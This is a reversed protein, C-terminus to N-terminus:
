AARVEDRAVLEACNARVLAAAVSRAGGHAHRIPPPDSIHAWTRGAVASGLTRRNVGEEAAVAKVTEGARVRRRAGRVVDATLIAGPNRNGRKQSGILERFCAGSCTKARARKTPHPRFVKGCVVCPKRYPHKQKHIRMHAGPTLVELNEPRNDRGDGNKHHVHEDRRLRRGLVGEMVLRHELVSERTGPRKVTRYRSPM